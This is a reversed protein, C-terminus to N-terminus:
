NIKELADVINEIDCCKNLYRAIGFAHKKAYHLANDGVMKFLFPNTGIVFDGESTPMMIKYVGTEFDIEVMMGFDFNFTAMIFDGLTHTTFNFYILVVL